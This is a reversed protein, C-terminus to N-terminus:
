YKRHGLHPSSGQNLFLGQLLFHCGVGTNKGPSDGHVSSVPPNCDMPTAFLQAHSLVCACVCVCVCLIASGLSHHTPNALFNMKSKEMFSVVEIMRM